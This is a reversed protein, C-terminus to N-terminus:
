PAPPELGRAGVLRFMAFKALLFENGESERKKKGARWARNTPSGIIKLLFFTFARERVRGHAPM